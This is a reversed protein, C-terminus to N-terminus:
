PRPRSVFGAIRAVVQVARARLNSKKDTVPTGHARWLDEAALGPLWDLDRASRDVSSQFVGFLDSGLRVEINPVRDESLQSTRARILGLIEAALNAELARDKTRLTVTADVLANLPEVRGYPPTASYDLSIHLIAFLLTRIALGERDRCAIRAITRSLEFQSAHRGTDWDESIVPAAWETRLNAARRRIYHAIHITVLAAKETSRDRGLRLALRRFVTSPLSYLYGDPGRAGFQACIRACLIGILRGVLHTDREAVATMVVDHFARLPDRRTFELQHNELTASLVHNENWSIGALGWAQIRRTSIQQAIKLAVVSFTMNEVQILGIPVIILVVYFGAILCAGTAIGGQQQFERPLVLGVLGASISIVIAALLLALEPARYLDGIGYNRLGSVAVQATLFYIASFLGGVTAVTAIAAGDVAHLDINSFDLAPAALLGFAVGGIGLLNAVLTVARRLTVRTLDSM